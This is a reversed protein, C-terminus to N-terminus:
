FAVIGELYQRGKERNFLKLATSDQRQIEYRAETEAAKKLEM